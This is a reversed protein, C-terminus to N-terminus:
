LELPHGIRCTASIATWDRDGGLLTEVDYEVEVTEDRGCTPCFRTELKSTRM